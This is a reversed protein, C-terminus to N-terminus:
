SIQIWIHIVRSGYNLSIRCNLSKNELNFRNHRQLKWLKRSQVKLIQYYTVSKCLIISTLGGGQLICQEESFSYSPYEKLWLLLYKQVSWLLVTFIVTDCYCNIYNLHLHHSTNLSSHLLITPFTGHSHM